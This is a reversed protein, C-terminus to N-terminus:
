WQDRYLVVEPTHRLSLLIDGVSQTQGPLISDPRIDALPQVVFRREFWRDHPLVLEVTRCELAGAYIIDVDVPRPAYRDETRVRGLAAELGHIDRSLAEVPVDTELILAANLYKLHRVEPKVGVPETEYVLSQATVRVGRVAGLGDRAGQLNALRDCRQRGPKHRSGHDVGRLMPGAAIRVATEFGWFM